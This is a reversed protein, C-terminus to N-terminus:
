SEKSPRADPLYRGNKTIFYAPEDEDQTFSQAVLDLLARRDKERALREFCERTREKKDKVIKALLIAFQKPDELGELQEGPTPEPVPWPGRALIAVLAARHERIGTEIDAAYHRRLHAPCTWVIVGDLLEFRAHWSLRNRKLWARAAGEDGTPRAPAPAPRRAIQPPEPRPPRAPADVDLPQRPPATEGRLKALAERATYHGLRDPPGVTSRAPTPQPVPGPEPVRVPADTHPEPPKPVHDFNNNDPSPVPGPEPVRVPADSPELVVVVNEEENKLSKKLPEAAPRTPIPTVALPPHVSQYYHPARIPLLPTCPSTTTPPNTGAEKWPELLRVLRTGNPRYHREILGFRELTGLHKKITREALGATHALAANIADTIDGAPTHAYAHHILAALLKKATRAGRLAELFAPDNLRDWRGRFELKGQASPLTIRRAKTKGTTLVKGQDRLRKLARGFQRPSMAIPAGLQANTGSLTADTRPDRKRSERLALRAAYFADFDKPRALERNLGAQLPIYQASAAYGLQPRRALIQASM